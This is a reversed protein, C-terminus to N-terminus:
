GCGARRPASAAITTFALVARRRSVGAPGRGLLRRSRLRLGTCRAVSSPARSCRRFSPHRAALARRCRRCSSTASARAWAFVHLVRLSWALPFVPRRRARAPRSGRAVGSSPSRSLCRVCCWAVFYWAPQTTGPMTYLTATSTSCTTLYAPARSRGPSRSRLADAGGLRRALFRARGAGALRQGARTAGPRATSARDPTPCCAVACFGVGKLIVGLPSSAPRGSGAGTRGLVTAACGDASAHHSM